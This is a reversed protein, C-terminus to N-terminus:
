KQALFRTQSHEADPLPQRSYTFCKQLERSRFGIPKNDRLIQFVKPDGGFAFVNSLISLLIFTFLIM